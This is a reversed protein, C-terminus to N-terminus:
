RHLPSRERFLEPQLTRVSAFRGEGLVVHDIVEIGVVRGADV